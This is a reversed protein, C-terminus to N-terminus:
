MFLAADSQWSMDVHYRVQKMAGVAARRVELSDDALGTRTAAKALKAAFRDLIAECIVQQINGDLEHAFTSLTGIAVCVAVRVAVRSDVLALDFFNFVASQMELGLAGSRHLVEGCSLLRGCLSTWHEGSESLSSNGDPPLLNYLLRSVHEESSYIEALAGLSTSSATRVQEDESLATVLISQSIKELVEASAKKGAARLVVSIGEAYSVSIASSEAEQVGSSLENLVPDIRTSMPLLTGLCECAQTRVQKSADSINKLFTTQLQPVFAKLGVGGKQLLVSLTSLIAFKVNSPFRDGVVRILPGTTKILYPKLLPTETMVALEGIGTAAAERAEVSGNMLAHIFIPLLNELAKPIRFLPLLFQGNVPDYLRDKDKKNVRHKADSATLNSLFSTLLYSFLLM